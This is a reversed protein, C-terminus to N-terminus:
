PKSEALAHLVGQPDLHLLRVARRAYSEAVANVSVELLRRAERVNDAELAQISHRRLM